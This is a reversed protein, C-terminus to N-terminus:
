TDANEVRLNSYSMAIMIGLSQAGDGWGVERPTPLAAFMRMIANAKEDDEVDFSIVKAM